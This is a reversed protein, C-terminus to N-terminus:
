AQVDQGDVANSLARQGGTGSQKSISHAGAAAPMGPVGVRLAAVPCWQPEGECRTPAPGSHPSATGAAPYAGDALAAHSPRTWGGGRQVTTLRQLTVPTAATSSAAYLTFSCFPVVLAKDRM